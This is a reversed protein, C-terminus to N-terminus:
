GSHDGDRTLRDVCIGLAIINTYRHDIILNDWCSCRDSHVTSASSTRPLLTLKFPSIAHKTKTKKDHRPPSCFRYEVLLGLSPVFEVGIRLSSM